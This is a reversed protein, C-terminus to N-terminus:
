DKKLTKRLYQPAGEEDFGEVVIDFDGEYSPFTFNLVRREGPGIEVQPHWLITERMDPVDEGWAPMYSAVPTSMGQFDVVRTNKGFEYSQLNHRYTVFNMVGGFSWHGFNYTHPYVLIREVLLPDYNLIKEHDTVPVGDLLVLVPLQQDYTAPRYTDQLYMSIVRGGDVSRVKAQAIFEIFLEEMLPFRTYDDLVYEVPDNGLVLDEPIALREYLTDASLAKQIQMAASRELISDELSTSLLLPDLNGAKVKKFPSELDLHSEVDPFVVELVAEVDGYINKTYFSATGDEGIVSTYVDAERGPISLFVETGTLKKLDDDNQAVATVRVIEGEYELERVPVFSRGKRMSEKFVSPSSKSPSVLGDDHNVSVSLTVPKDSANTLVLSQGSVDASVMGAQPFVVPELATYEDEPVIKVGSPSRDTSFPNIISIVRSGIEFDYDEENFCQSTYAVMRYNGTPITNKLTIVGSGRGDKMAVKATQVPGDASCVELYAVASAASFGKGSADLCFASVFMDDGSVYIDRDTSVYVRESLHGQGFAATMAALASLLICILRRM